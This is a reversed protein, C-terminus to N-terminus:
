VAVSVADNNVQFTIKLNLHEGAALRSPSFPSFVEFVTDKYQELSCRFSESANSVKKFLLELKWFSSNLFISFCEEDDGTDDHSSENYQTHPPHTHATHHLSAADCVKAGPYM